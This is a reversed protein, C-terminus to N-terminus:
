IVTKKVLDFAEACLIGKDVMPQIIKLATYPDDGKRYPREETLAQYIDCIGLIRDYLTLHEGNLGQAYGSGDLKEHHSSAIKNIQHFGEIGGLIYNTYYVHSKIIKFEDNSLKGPKELIEKPVAIKGIDHLLAATSLLSIDNTFNNKIAVNRVIEALGTSHTSTFRSKSDIIRGFVNAISLLENEDINSYSKSMDSIKETVYQFNDNEIDLWFSDQKSLSQFAQVTEPNFLKGQNKNVYDKLSDIQTYIKKGKNIRIDVEDSLYIIQSELPIESGKLYNPGTGDHNEHHFQIIKETKKPVPLLSVLESGLDCHSKVRNKLFHEESLTKTVGIDHLLGSYYLEALNSLGLKEGLRFSIYATRKAHSLVRNEGLDLALSFASLLQTFNVNM